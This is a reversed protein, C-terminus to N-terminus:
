DVWSCSTEHILQCDSKRNRAITVRMSQRLTASTEWENVKEHVHRHWRLSLNREVSVSPLVVIWFRAVLLFRGIHRKLRRVMTTSRWLRTTRHVEEDRAMLNERRFRPSKGKGKASSMEEQPKQCATHLRRGLSRHCWMSQM